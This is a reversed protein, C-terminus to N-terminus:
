AAIAWSGQGVVPRLAAFTLEHTHAHAHAHGPTPSDGTCVNTAKTTCRGRPVKQTQAVVVHLGRM